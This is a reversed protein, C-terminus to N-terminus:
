GNIEEKHKGEMTYKLLDKFIRVGIKLSSEALTSINSLYDEFSESLEKIPSVSPALRQKPLMEECTATEVEPEAVVCQFSYLTTSNTDARIPSRGKKPTHFLQSTCITNVSRIVVM